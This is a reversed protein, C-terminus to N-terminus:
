CLLCSGREDRWWLKKPLFAAVFFYVFIFTIKSIPIDWFSALIHHGSLWSSVWSSALLTSTMQLLLLPPWLLHLSKLLARRKMWFAVLILTILTLQQFHFLFKTELITGWLIECIPISQLVTCDPPSDHHSFYGLEPFIVINMSQKLFFFILAFIWLSQNRLRYPGNWRLFPQCPGTRLARILIDCPLIKKWAWVKWGALPSGEWEKGRWNGAWNMRPKRLGPAKM